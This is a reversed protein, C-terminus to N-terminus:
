CNALLARHASARRRPIPQSAQATHRDEAYAISYRVFHQGGPCCTRATFLLSAYAASFSNRDLKLATRIMERARSANGKMAAVVALGGYTEGFDHDITKAHELTAEAADLPGSLLQMWALM